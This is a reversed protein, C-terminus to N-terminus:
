SALAAIDNAILVTLLIIVAVNLSGVPWKWRHDARWFRRISAINFGIAMVAVPIGVIPGVGSAIGAAPLLWPFVIYTLTCRIASAAVSRSFARTVEDETPRASAPVPPLASRDRGQAPIELRTSM